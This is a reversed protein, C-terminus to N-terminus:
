GALEDVVSPVIDTLGRELDDADFGEVDEGSILVGIVIDDNVWSIDVFTESESTVIQHYVTGGRFEGLEDINAEASDDAAREESFEVFDDPAAALVLGAGEIEVDGPAEEDVIGCLLLTPEGGDSTVASNLPRGLDIVDYVADDGVPDLASALTDPLDQIPCDPEDGDDADGLTDDITAAAAETNLGGDDGGFLIVAGAGLLATVSMLGIVVLIRKRGAGTPAPGPDPPGLQTPLPLHDGPRRVPPRDPPQGPLRPPPLQAM